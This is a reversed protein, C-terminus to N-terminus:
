QFFAHSSGLKITSIPQVGFTKWLLRCLQIVELHILRKVEVCCFLKEELVIQDIFIYPHSVSYVAFALIYSLM